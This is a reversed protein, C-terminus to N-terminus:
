LIQYRKKFKELWGQSARFQGPFSSFEIAKKRIMNARTPIKRQILWNLLKQDM